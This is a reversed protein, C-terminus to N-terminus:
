PRVDTERRLLVPVNDILRASGLRAAAFVRAPRDYDLREVPQLTEADCIAVYDIPDFSAGQLAAVAAAIAASAPVGGSFSDAAQRITRHLSPALARFPPSLYANRSSLALGDPERVTPVGVIRTAIDLDAALRRIVQLQQWDKEGFCAADAGCQVLLKTVVTAVGAFHGPRFPGCLGDTLGAVTVTTAFGAPYIAAVPPAYLLDAGAAGVFRADAAEDRPYRAFDEGPSFQTPNVFLSVVIRRCHRRGADILAKHGAHLAGMTPVLAATEGRARWAAVAARLDAVTRAIPPVAGDAGAPDTM